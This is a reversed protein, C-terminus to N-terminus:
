QCHGLKVGGIVPADAGYVDVCTDSSSTCDNKGIRCWEECELGFIPHYVCALGQKCDNYATCKSWRAGSGSKDCDPQGNIEDWICNNTGCATSPALLDCAIGCVKGNTIENEGASDYAQQCNGLGSGSCANGVTECYPRCANYICTYGAACNSTSTCHSGLAGSGAAVCSSAGSTQNTVDCTQNAACGCQPSLGCM